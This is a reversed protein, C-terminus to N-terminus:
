HEMIKIPQAEIDKLYQCLYERCSRPRIDYVSCKNNKYFICPLGQDLFNLRFAPYNNPDQYVSKEPFLKSGEEYTMFVESFTRDVKQLFEEYDEIRGMIFNRDGVTCCGGHNGEYGLCSKSCYELYEM